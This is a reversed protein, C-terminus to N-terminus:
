PSVLCPGARNDCWLEFEVSRHLSMTRWVTSMEICHSICLHSSWDASPLEVKSYPSKGNAIYCYGFHGEGQLQLKVGPGDWHLPLVPLASSDCSVFLLGGDHQAKSLKVENCIGCEWWSPSSMIHQPNARWRLADLRM